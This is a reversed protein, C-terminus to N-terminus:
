NAFHISGGLAAQASEHIAEALTPHAHVTEEIQWATLNNRVALAIPAILDSAHLGVVAGGIIRNSDLETILKVFGADQGMAVAKGNARFPFSGVKIKIGQDMAQTESMGVVGVEPDTFIVTPIASYDMAVNHGCINKAAIIGQHSAVHALQIRDTLDGIAYIGSINTEMRGNVRIGRGSENIRLGITKVNLHSTDPERGVAMLIREAALRGSEGDEDFSLTYRGDDERDIRQARTGTYIHIGRRKAATVVAGRVDGDLSSLVTDLFEVVTVRVGLRAYLFAFEMGIIGGGIIAISKPLTDLCLAERSTLVGDLGAGTIPLVSSKSGSALIINDAGVTIDGDGSRVIVRQTSELTGTGRLLTVGHHELLYEVGRVLRNVIRDKRKIATEMNVSPNHTVLGFAKANHITQYAEATQILAKTPICGQNLCTGGVRDKEILIVKAGLKAAQIAAVYGGPGGGIIAVDGTIQTAAPVTKGDDTRTEGITHNNISAM